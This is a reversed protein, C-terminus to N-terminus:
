SQVSDILRVARIHASLRGSGRDQNYIAQSVEEVGSLERTYNAAANEPAASATTFRDRPTAM